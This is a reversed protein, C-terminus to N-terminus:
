GLPLDLWFAAGEGPASEVGIAGQLREAARRAVALGLGVGQTGEPPDGRDFPRFIWVQQRTRIGPGDDRVWIRLTGDASDASVRAAGAYLLANDILASLARRVLDEDTRLTPLAGSLEVADPLKRNHCALIAAGRAVEDLDTPELRLERTGIRSLDLLGDMM